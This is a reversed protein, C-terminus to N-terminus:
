TQEVSTLVWITGMYGRCIQFQNQDLNSHKALSTGNIKRTKEIVELYM